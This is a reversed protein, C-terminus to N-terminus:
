VTCGSFIYCKERDIVLSIKQRKCFRELFESESKKTRTSSSLEDSLSTKVDLLGSKTRM